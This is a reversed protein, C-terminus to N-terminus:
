GNGRDTIHQVTPESTRDEWEGWHVRWGDVPNAPDAVVHVEWRCDVADPDSTLSVRRCVVTYSGLQTLADEGQDETIAALGMATAEELTTEGPLPMRYHLPQLQVLIEMPWFREDVGYRAVVEDYTMVPETVQADWESEEAFWVDVDVGEPAAQYIWGCGLGNLYANVLMHMTGNDLGAARMRKVGRDLRRYAEDFVPLDEPRWINRDLLKGETVPEERVSEARTVHTVAVINTTGPEFSFMYLGVNKIWSFLNSSYPDILGADAMAFEKEYSYHICVNGTGLQWDPISAVYCYRRLIDTDYGMAEMAAWAAAVQPVSDDALDNVPQFMLPTSSSLLLTHLKEDQPVVEYGAEALVQTWYAQEEQPLAYFGPQGYWWYVEDRSGIDWIRRAQSWFDDTYWHCYTVEGTEANIYVRYEGTPGHDLSDFDLNVDTRSSFLVRWESPTEEDMGDWGRQFYGPYVGMADLESQPTGYKAVIARQGIAVAEEMSMEAQTEDSVSHVAGSTNMKGFSQAWMEEVTLGIALATLSALILALVLVMATSLKKKMVPLEKRHARDIIRRALDPKSRAAATCSTVADRVSQRFASEDRM